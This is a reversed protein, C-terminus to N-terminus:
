YSYIIVSTWFRKRSPKNLAVLEGAKEAEWWGLHNHVDVAPFRAKEIIHEEVVLTPQPVFEGLAIDQKEETM